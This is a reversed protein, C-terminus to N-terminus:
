LGINWGSAGEAMRSKKGKKEKVGASARGKGGNDFWGVEAERRTNGWVRGSSKKRTADPKRTKKAM